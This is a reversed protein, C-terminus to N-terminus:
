SQRPGQAFLSLSPGALEEATSAETQPGYLPWGLGLIQPPLVSDQVGLAATEQLQRLCPHLCQVTKRELASLQVYGLRRRHWHSRSLGVSHHSLFIPTLIVPFACTCVFSSFHNM